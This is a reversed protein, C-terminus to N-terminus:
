KILFLEINKIIKSSLKRKNLKINELQTSGNEKLDSILDIISNNYIELIKKATLLGIGPVLNLMYSDINDKTIQNKKILNIKNNNYIKNEYLRILFEYIILSTDKISQTLLLSFGKSYSLSYLCSYITKYEITDSNYNNYNGEIIYYIKNSSIDLELLRDCQEKYRSDKVSSLLDNITKREIIILINDNLDKIIYDGQELNKFIVTFLKDEIQKKQFFEKILTPERNDIELIM